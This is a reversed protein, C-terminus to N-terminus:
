PRRFKQDNIRRAITASHMDMITGHMCEAIAPPARLPSQKDFTATRGSEFATALWRVGFFNGPLKDRMIRLLDAGTRMIPM